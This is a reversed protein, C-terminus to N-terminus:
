LYQAIMKMNQNRTRGMIVFLDIFSLIGFLGLTLLEVIGGVVDGIYFRHFGFYGAFWNLAFTVSPSKLQTTLVAMTKEEDANELKEKLTIFDSKIFKPQNVALWAATLNTM